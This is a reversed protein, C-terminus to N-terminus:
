YALLSAVLYAERNQNHAAERINFIRYEKGYGDNYFYRYSYDFLIAKAYENFLATNGAQIAQGFTASYEIAFGDESLIDRMRKWETGSTGRHGEDILVINNFSFAEVAVTKD